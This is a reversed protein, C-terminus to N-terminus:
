CGGARADEELLANCALYACYCSVSTGYCVAAATRAVQQPCLPSHEAGAPPCRLSVEAEARDEKEATEHKILLFVDPFDTVLQGLGALSYAERLGDNCFCIRARWQSISLRSSRLLPELILGFQTWGGLPRRGQLLAVLGM